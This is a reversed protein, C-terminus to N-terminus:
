QTGQAPDSGMKTAGSGPQAPPPWRELIYDIIQDAPGGEQLANDPAAPLMLRITGDHDTAILFPFDSANFTALTSPAVIWTPTDRLMEQASPLQAGTLITVVPKAPPAKASSSRAGSRGSAKGHAGVKAPPGSPPEPIDALLAYVRAGAASGNGQAIREQAASLNQAQKVCQMCWRPFLLYITVAGPQPTAQAVGKASLMPMAGAFAPIRTGLLAYQRRDNGILIAEDPTLSPPMASEIESLNRSAAGREDDYQELAPFELAHEFLTHPPIALASLAGDASTASGSSRLLKLLFPQREGLVTIADLTYALELYRVTADTVADTFADYPVARLMARCAAFGAKEDGLKLDAEILYSYAEALQPRPTATNGIYATAATQAAQWQEGFACLHAYAVLDSGAYTKDTRMLCADRAQAVAVKLAALEIDSWNQSDRRTIDVPLNAQDYAAQPSLLPSVETPPAIPQSDAIGQPEPKQASAAHPMCFLLLVLSLCFRRM